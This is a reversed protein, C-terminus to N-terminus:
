KPSTARFTVWDFLILTDAYDTIINRTPFAVGLIAAASHFGYWSPGWISGSYHHQVKCTADDLTRAGFGYEIEAFGSPSRM